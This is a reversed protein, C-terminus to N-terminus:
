LRCLAGTVAVGGTGCRHLHRDTMPLIMREFVTQSLVDDNWQHGHHRGQWRAALELAIGVDFVLDFLRRAM